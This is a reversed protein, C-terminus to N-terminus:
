EEEATPSTGTTLTEASLAVLQRLRRIERAADRLKKPVNEARPLPQEFITALEELLQEHRNVVEANVQKDATLKDTPLEELVTCNHHKDLEACEKFPIFRSVDSILHVGDVEVANMSDYRLMGHAALFYEVAQGLSYCEIVSPGAGECWLVYVKSEPTTYETECMPMNRM